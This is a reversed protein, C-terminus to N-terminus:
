ARGRKAAALLGAFGTLILPLAAPVPTVVVPPTMEPPLTGPGEPGDTGPIPPEPNQSPPQRSAALFGPIIAGPYGGPMNAAGGQVLGGSIDPAMALSFPSATQGPNNANGGPASPGDAIARMVADRLAAPKLSPDRPSFGIASPQASADSGADATRSTSGPAMALSIPLALRMADTENQSLSAGAEDGLRAKEAGRAKGTYFAVPMSVATIMLFYIILALVGRKKLRNNMARRCSGIGPLHM